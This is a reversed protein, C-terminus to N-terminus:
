QINFISYNCNSLLTMSNFSLKEERLCQEVCGIKAIRIQDKPKIGGSFM